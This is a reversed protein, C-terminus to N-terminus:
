KTHKLEKRAGRFERTPPITKVDTEISKILLKKRQEIVQTKLKELLNVTTNEDLSQENNALRNLMEKILEGKNIKEDDKLKNEINDHLKKFDQFEKKLTKYAHQWINKADTPSYHQQQYSEWLYKVYDAQRQIWQDETYGKERSKIPDHAANKCKLLYKKFAKNSFQGMCIMYRCVIPFEVYFNNFESKQYIDIKENDSMEIFKPDEKVRKKIDDWLKNATNTSVVTHDKSDTKKDNLNTNDVIGQNKKYIRKDRKAQLIKQAITPM